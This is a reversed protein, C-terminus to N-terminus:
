RVVTLPLAAICACAAQRNLEQLDTEMTGSAIPRRGAARREEPPFPPEPKM